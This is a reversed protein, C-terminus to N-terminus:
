PITVGQSPSINVEDQSLDIGACRFAAALNSIGVINIGPPLILGPGSM